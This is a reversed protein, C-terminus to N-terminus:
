SVTALFCPIYHLGSWLPRNGLFGLARGAQGKPANRSTALEEKDNRAM